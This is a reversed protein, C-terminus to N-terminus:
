EDETNKELLDVKECFERVRSSMDLIAELGSETNLNQVQTKLDGLESKVESEIENSIKGEKILNEVMELLNILINLLEPKVRDIGFLSTEPVEKSIM